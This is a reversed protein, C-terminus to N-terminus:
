KNHGKGKHGSAHDGAYDHKNGKGHKGAKEHGKGSPSDKIEKEEIKPRARMNNNGHDKFVLVPERNKENGPHRERVVVPRQERVIVQRNNVVVPRTDRIVFRPYRSYDHVVQTVPRHSSQSLFKVAALNYLDSDSWRYVESPNNRYYGYARGYPPGLSAYSPEDLYLFNPSLGLALLLDYWSRHRNREEIVRAVDMNSARAVEYYLPWQYDPIRRERLYSVREPPLSYYNSFTQPHIDIGGPGFHVNFDQAYVPLSFILNVVICIYCTLFTAKGKKM